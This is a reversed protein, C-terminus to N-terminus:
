PTLKRKKIEKLALVYKDEVGHFCSLKLKKCMVQVVKNKEKSIVVADIGSKKLMEIGFGDSRNCFVAEKGDESILVRNDTMVGDFDLILLKIKKSFININKKM